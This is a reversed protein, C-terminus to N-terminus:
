SFYLESKKTMENNYKENFESEDPFSIISEMIYGKFCNFSIIKSVKNKSIYRNNYAEKLFTLSFFDLLNFNQIEKNLCFDMVDCFYDIGNNKKLRISTKSNKMFEIEDIEFETIEKISDKSVEISKDNLFFLLNITKM